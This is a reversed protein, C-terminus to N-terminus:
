STKELLDFHVVGGNTGSVDSIDTGSACIYIKGFIDDYTGWSLHPGLVISERPIVSYGRGARPLSKISM